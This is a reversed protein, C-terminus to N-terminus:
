QKNYLVLVIHVSVSICCDVISTDLASFLTSMASIDNSIQREFVEM